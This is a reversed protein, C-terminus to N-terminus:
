KYTAVVYCDAAGITKTALTTSNNWVIGASCPLGYAGFDFMFNSKAAVAFVAFPAAGDSPVTGTIHIQLYQASASDSYGSLTYLTGGTGKLVGSAALASPTNSMISPPEVEVKVAGTASIAARQDSAGDKLEVAGIEIDGANITIEDEDLIWASGTYVYKKLTDSTKFIDSTEMSTLAIREANTGYFSNFVGGRKWGVAM